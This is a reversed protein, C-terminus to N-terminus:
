NNNSVNVNRLFAILFLNIIYSFVKNEIVRTDSQEIPLLSFIVTVIIAVIIVILGIVRDTRISILAIILTFIWLSTLIIIGTGIAIQTSM